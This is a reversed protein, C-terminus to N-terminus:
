KSASYSTPSMYVEDVLYEGDKQRILPIAAQRFPTFLPDAHLAQWNKEASERDSHDLLYVFTNQWAPDESKPIWYGVARLGHKDQLGSVGKFVSELDSAKGPLAHYVMLEYLHTSAAEVSHASSRNSQFAMGALFFLSAVSVFRLVTACWHRVSVNIKNM